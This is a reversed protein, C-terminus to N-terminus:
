LWDAFLLGLGIKTTKHNYDILSEGYGDFVRMYGKFKVSLPYSWGIQVAGKNDKRLNNRVLLTLTHNGKMFLVGLEGHGMYHEMDPNDDGGPDDPYDKKREPIRYWPKLSLVLDGREMVLNLYIRNWSRSQDGSQGNSQHSAGVMITSNRLSLIEWDTDFLLFLEPEHNTERFPRSLDANYAQWWSQNTYAAYLNGGTGAWDEDLMVKLSVQFAIELNDLDGPLLGLPEPNSSWSYSLPLIFNPRHPLLLFPNENAAAEMALRREVATPVDSSAVVLVASAPLAAFFLLLNGFLKLMTQISIRKKQRM